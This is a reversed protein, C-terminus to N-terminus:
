TVPVFVRHRSNLLYTKDSVHDSAEKGDGLTIAIHGHIDSTKSGVYNRDWVLVCGAPLNRLDERSVSVEKFNKNRELVAAAQYASAGMKGDVLDAQNLIERAGKLCKHRTNMTSANKYAINALNNGLKPNYVDKLQKLDTKTNFSQDFMRTQMSFAMQNNMYLNFLMMTTMFDGDFQPFNGGFAYPNMFLSDMGGTNSVPNAFPSFQIFQTFGVNSRNYINNMFLGNGM